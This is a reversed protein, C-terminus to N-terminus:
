GRGSFWLRAELRVDHVLNSLDDVSQAVQLVACAQALSILQDTTLGERTRVEDILVIAMEGATKKDM